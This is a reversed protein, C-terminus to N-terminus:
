ALGVIRLLAPNKALYQQHLRPYYFPPAEVIETTIRGFGAAKLRDQYAARGSGGRTSSRRSRTSPPRVAHRHREGAAHGADSRPRWFLRLMADYSTKTPDFVVLVVRYPRDDRLVKGTRRTPRTVRRLRGGDRLRWAGGSSASPVGFCGM